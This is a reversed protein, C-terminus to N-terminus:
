DQNYDTFEITLNEISANAGVAECIDEWYTGRAFDDSYLKLVDKSSYAKPVFSQYKDYLLEMWALKEETQLEFWENRLDTLLEEISVNEKSSTTIIDENHIENLADFPMCQYWENLKTLLNRHQQILKNKM